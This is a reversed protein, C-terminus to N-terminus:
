GKNNSTRLFTGKYVSVVEEYIFVGTGEREDKIEQVVLKTPEEIYIFNEIMDRSKGSVVISQSLQQEKLVLTHIAVKINIDNIQKFPESRLIVNKKNNFLELNERNTVVNVGFDKRTQNLIKLVEENIPFSKGDIKNDEDVLIGDPSPGYVRVVASKEDAIASNNIIPIKKNLVDTNNKDSTFSQATVKNDEDSSKILTNLISEYDDNSDNTVNKTIINVTFYDKSQNISYNDVNDIVYDKNDIVIKIKM